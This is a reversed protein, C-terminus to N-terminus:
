FNVVVDEIIGANWVNQLLTAFLFSIDRSIRHHSAANKPPMVVLYQGRFENTHKTNM